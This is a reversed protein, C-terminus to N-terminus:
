RSDRLIGRLENTLAEADEPRGHFAAPTNQWLAARWQDGDKVAVLSQVANVDPNIDDAGPPVMGAVARLLMVESVLQRVGRVKTVYKATEHDAFIGALHQRIADEGDIMSGDFGVMNGDQAFLAAFGDADQTNWCEILARHLAIVPVDTKERSTM